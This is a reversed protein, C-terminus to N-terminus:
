FSPKAYLSSCSAFLVPVLFLKGAFVLSRLLISTEDDVNISPVWYFNTKNSEKWNQEKVTGAYERKFLSEFPTM